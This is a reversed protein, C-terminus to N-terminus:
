GEGSTVAVAKEIERTETMEVEAIEDIERTESKEIEVVEEDEDSTM